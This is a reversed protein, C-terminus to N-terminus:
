RERQVAPAAADAAVDALAALFAEDAPERTLLLRFHIPGIFSELMRKPDVGDAVEGRARAREVIVRTEDFRQQWFQRRSAASEENDDGTAMARSLALGLPTSSYAVLEQGLAVLDTRLGGTDPPRILETSHAVMADVLLREKTGWRRYVSTQHVGARDAVDAVSLGDPGSELLVEQAAALVAARVQASRGGPRRARVEDVSM